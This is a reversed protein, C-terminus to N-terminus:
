GMFEWASVYANNKDVYELLDSYFKHTGLTASDGIMILKKRARTMAVNMRRYDSLFGIVGDENSRVLSIYIVDREQGQFSDVTNATIKGSEDGLKDLRDKILKTQASYPSIIGISSKKEESMHTELHNFLIDMEGENHLSSSESDRAEEFGTGATDIFELPLNRECDLLWHAVSEDAKLEGNYFKENSFGMIVENMRYQVELLTNPKNKSICKEMLTIELGEGRSKNSKVTPPLQWPDGAMIVRQAKIIPIWCSPELAQAAEDIIVTSFQREAIYRHMSGVLTCTIIQADAIINDVLDNELDIAQKATAKAEYILQKRQEREEKGFNRKYKWAMRRFEDASKKYKKIEKFQPSANVRGELTHEVIGEHIRSLNGIRVVSLGREAIKQTLLDAAANSPACVLIQKEKKCIQLVTEVLTTTKGTGPPGHIIALDNAALARNMAVNQSANLTPITIEFHKQDFQPEKEGLIMESIEELRNREAGVLTYMAKEMEKYSQEDFLLDVGIKGDDLWDPFDDAYLIVKMSNNSVYHITGHVDQIDKDDNHFLRVAKGGRFFHGSKDEHKEVVVFPYEGLGFGKDKVQVPYWSVGKKVREKATTNSLLNKHYSSEEEKENILLSLTHKLQEKVSIM